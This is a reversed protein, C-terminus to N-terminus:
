FNYFTILLLILLFNLVISSKENERLLNAQFCANNIYCNYPSLQGVKTYIIKQLLTKIIGHILASLTVKRNSVSM